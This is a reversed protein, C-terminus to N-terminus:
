KNLFFLVYVEAFCKCVMYGYISLRVQWSTVSKSCPCQMSHGQLLDTVLQGKRMKKRDGDTPFM